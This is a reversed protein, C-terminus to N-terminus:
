SALASLVAAEQPVHFSNPVSRLFLLSVSVSLHISQKPPVSFTYISHLCLYTYISLGRSLSVEDGSDGGATQTAGAAHQQPTRGERAPVASHLVPAAQHRGAGAPNNGLGGDAGGVTRLPLFLACTRVAHTLLVSAYLYM